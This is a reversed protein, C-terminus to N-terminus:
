KVMLGIGTGLGFWFSTLDLPSGFLYEIIRAGHGLHDGVEEEYFDDLWDWGVWVRRARFEEKVLLCLMLGEKKEYDREGWGLQKSVARRGVYGLSCLM